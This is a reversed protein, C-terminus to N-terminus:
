NESDALSFALGGAQPLGALGFVVGRPVWGSSAVLAPGRKEKGNRHSKAAAEKGAEQRAWREPDQCM